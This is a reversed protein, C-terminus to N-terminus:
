PWQLEELRRSLWAAEEHGGVRRHFDRLRRYREEVDFGIMTHLKRLCVPCLHLPQTDFEDRGNAGNMACRFYICHVLGFLHAAEHALLHCCRRVLLAEDDASPPDAFFQPHLRGFTCVAVRERRGSQGYVLDDGDALDVLTVGLLLYADDPLHAALWDSVALTDWWELEGDQPDWTGLVVGSMDAPPLLVAEMAFFAAVFQRLTELPPSKDPPFPGLPQLYLRQRAGDPRTPRAQFFREYPQGFEQNCSLWELPAPPGMPEFGPGDRFARQLVPPLDATPGIAAQRAGADPPTFGDAGVPPQRCAIIWWGALAALLLYCGIRIAALRPWM